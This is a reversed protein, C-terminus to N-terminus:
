EWRVYGSAAQCNTIWMWDGKGWMEFWTWWSVGASQYSWHHWQEWSYDLNDSQQPGCWCLRMMCGWCCSTINVKWFLWRRTVSQQNEQDKGQKGSSKLSSAFYAKLFLRERGAKQFTSVGKTEWGMRGAWNLESKGRPFDNSRHLGQTLCILQSESSWNLCQQYIVEHWKVASPLKKYLVTFFWMSCPYYTQLYIIYMSPWFWLTM